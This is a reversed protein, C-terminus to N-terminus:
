LLCFFKGRQRKDVKDVKREEKGDARVRVGLLGAM